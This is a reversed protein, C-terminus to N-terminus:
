DDGIAVRGGPALDVATELLPSGGFGLLEFSM